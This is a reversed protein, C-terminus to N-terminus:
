QRCGDIIGTLGSKIENLYGTTTAEITLRIKPETGSPRILFWGEALTFKLGDLRSIFVPKFVTILREELRRFDLGTDPIGGRYIPYEPLADALDALSQRSAISAILAAAFVGDPCLSSRPFIWAGSPEGGFDGGEKLARSVSNDGVATRSVTFGSDKLAMSADITTIVRHAGLEKAMIRLMKDGSIFRGHNDVAMMRDADGDQGIGLDAGSERVREMLEKMNEAVPEVPHTFLGVPTCYLRIVECDMRELLLPTIVSGAAGACDLVVKVPHKGPFFRRIHEIHEEVAGAYVEGGGYREWGATEGATDLVEVKRELEAQQEPSFASGDPNLLKIGNYEPPNHSATIMLSADFRRGALALTPTPVLGADYARAGSAIVGATAAHKLAESSTRSDCGIIVRPYRKGVALGVKLALKFFSNDALRRIGSTGFLAV